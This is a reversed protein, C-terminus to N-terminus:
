KAFVIHRTLWWMLVPQAFSISLILYLSRKTGSGTYGETESRPMIQSKLTRVLFFVIAISFWALVGYYGTSQFLMGGLLSFIMGVFKYGTYALIDMYKLETSLNMIYLSLMVAVLEIIIWVLATSAQLGLQEPTFREQTGLVIGSVLVYTVFAMVPIYLDPANEDFRPAVPQDQDFKISWNTHSYPFLLMLLKKGVYSTDVAFYYKLKSTSVYKELNKNVIDKGQGALSTGYQMAMNAMPDNFIQQGPFQNGWAQEQGPPGGGGFQQAGPDYFNPQPQGFSQQPPGHQVSTDDFVTPKQARSKGGKRKGSSQRFNSPADM